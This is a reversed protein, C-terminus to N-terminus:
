HYQNYDFFKKVPCQFSVSFENNELMVQVKTKIWLAHLFPFVIFSYFLKKAGLSLHLVVSSLEEASNHGQCRGDALFVCPPYSPCMLWCKTVISSTRKMYKSYETNKPQGEGGNNRIIDAYLWHQYFCCLNTWWRYNQLCYHFVTTLSTTWGLSENLGIKGQWGGVVPIRDIIQKRNKDGDKEKNTITPLSCCPKISKSISGGSNPM